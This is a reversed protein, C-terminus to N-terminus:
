PRAGRDFGSGGERASQDFRRRERYKRLAGYSWVVALLVGVPFAWSVSTTGVGAAPRLALGLLTLALGATGLLLDVTAPDTRALRVGGRRLGLWAVAVLALVAAFTTTGRWANFTYTPLPIGFAKGGGARYWHPVVTWALYGAAGTLIVWDAATLRGTRTPSQAV